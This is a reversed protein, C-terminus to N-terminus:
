ILVTQADYGGGENCELGSLFLRYLVTKRRRGAIIGRQIM